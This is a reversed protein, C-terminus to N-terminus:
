HIRLEDYKIIDSTGDAGTELCTGGQNPHLNIHLTIDPAKLAMGRAQMGL